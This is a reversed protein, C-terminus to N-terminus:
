RQPSGTRQSSNVVFIENLFGHHAVEAEVNSHAVLAPVQRKRGRSRDSPSHPPLCKSSPSASGRELGGAFVGIELRVDRNLKSSRRIRLLVEVLSDDVAQQRSQSLHM